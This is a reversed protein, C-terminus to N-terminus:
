HINTSSLKENKFYVYLADYDMQFGSCMGLIYHYENKNKKDPIGLTLLVQEKTMGNLLVNNQIDLAM